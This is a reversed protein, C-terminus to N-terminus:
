ISRTDQATKGAMKRLYAVFTRETLRRAGGARGRADLPLSQDCITPSTVRTRRYLM